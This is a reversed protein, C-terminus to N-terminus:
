ADGVTRAARSVRRRDERPPRRGPLNGRGALVEAREVVREVVLRGRREGLQRADFLLDGVVGRGFHGGARM